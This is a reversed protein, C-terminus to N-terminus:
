PFEETNPQPIFSKRLANEIQEVQRQEFALDTAFPIKKLKKQLTDKAKEAEESNRECLALYAYVARQVSPINHLPKLKSIKKYFNETQQGNQGLLSDLFVAEAQLLGEYLTFIFPAHNLVFYTIERAKEYNGSDEAREIDAIAQWILLVNGLDKEEPLFFLEEPMDVTRIKQAHLACYELQNWLADRAAPNRWALKLNTADNVMSKGNTPIANMLNMVFSVFGFIFLCMGFTESVPAVLSFVLPILSLIGCLLIGGLNYLVFPYSGDPKKRPPAMLCQGGTGPVSMRCFRLKGNEKLITFVFIRYSIFQYGTLYGFVLHGLEHTIVMFIISAFMTLLIWLPHETTYDLMFYLAILYLSLLLISFVKKAKQKM